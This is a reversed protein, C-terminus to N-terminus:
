SAKTANDARLTDRVIAPLGGLVANLRAIEADRTAVEQELQAIMKEAILGDRPFDQACLTVHYDADLVLIRDIHCIGPLKMAQTCRYPMQNRDIGSVVVELNM